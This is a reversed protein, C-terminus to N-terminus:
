KEQSLRLSQFFQDSQMKLLAISRENLTYHSQQGHAKLEVFGAERLVKLHQSVTSQALPLESCIDGCCRHADAALKTLIMLRIPHALAKYLRVLDDTPECCCMELHAKHQDEFATTDTDSM